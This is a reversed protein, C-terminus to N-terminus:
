WWLEDKTIEWWNACCGGSKNEQKQGQERTCGVRLKNESCSGTNRTFWEEAWVRSSGPENRTSALTNETAYLVRWPRSEQWTKSKRELWERGWKSQMLVYAAKSNRWCVSWGKSGECQNSRRGPHEERLYDQSQTWDKSVHGEETLGRRGWVGSFSWKGRRSIKRLTM